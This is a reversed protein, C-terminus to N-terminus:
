QLREGSCRAEVKITRRLCASVTAPSCPLPRRAHAFLRSIQARCGTAKIKDARRSGSEAHSLCRASGELLPRSRKARTRACPLARDPGGPCQRITRVAGGAHHERGRGPPQFGQRLNRLTAAHSRSRTRLPRDRSESDRNEQDFSRALGQHRARILRTAFRQTGM